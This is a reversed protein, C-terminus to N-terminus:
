FYNHLADPKKGPAKKNECMLDSKKDYYPSAKKLM